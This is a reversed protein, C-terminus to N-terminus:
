QLVTQTLHWYIAYWPGLSALAYVATLTGGVTTSILVPVVFRMWEALREARRHYTDGLRRLAAVLRETTLGSGILWRIWEPLTTGARSQIQGAALEEALRHCDTSLRANGSAAGALRVAEPLPVQHEFLLALLDCFVALRSSEALRLASPFLSRRGSPTTARTSAWWAWALGLTFAVPPVFWWHPLSAQLSSLLRSYWASPLGFQREAEAITPWIQSLFYLAVAYWLYAVVVPYALSARLTGKLERSRRLNRSLGELAAPLNGARVGADVIAAYLPSFRQQESLVQSLSQGQELQRGILGALNGTEGPLERALTILGRDLPVGLRSLSVIEDNLAIWQSLTVAAM